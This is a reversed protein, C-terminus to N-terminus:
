VAVSKRTVRCLVRPPAVWELKGAGPGIASDFRISCAGAKKLVLAASNGFVLLGALAGLDPEHGVLVVTDSSPQRNLAEIIKRHSGGPALAELTEVQEIELVRSVIRATRDARKFPSTMLRQVSKEIRRLGM